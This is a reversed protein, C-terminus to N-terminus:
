RTHGAIQEIRGVRLHQARRGTRSEIKDAVLKRHCDEFNKEYCLLCVHHALTAQEILHLAERAAATALVRAYIRRFEQMRGARAAERGPKPDGLARLHIYEISISGIRKALATKSFGKRRSQARERIDVLLTVGAASLTEAFDALSAGEYGITSLPNSSMSGKHGDGILTRKARRKSAIQM